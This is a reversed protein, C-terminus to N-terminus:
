PACRAAYTVRDERARAPWRPRWARRRCGARARPSPWCCRRRCAAPPRARRARRAVGPRGLARRRPVARAPAGRGAARAPRAACPAHPPPRPRPTPSRRCPARAAGGTARAQAGGCTADLAEMWLAYPLDSRSSRRGRAAPREGGEAAAAGRAPRAAAVQRDGARGRDCCSAARAAPCRGCRTPSRRASRAVVWWRGPAADRVRNERVHPARIPPSCRHRRRPAPALSGDM